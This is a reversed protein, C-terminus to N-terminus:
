VWTKQSEQLEQHQDLLQVNEQQKCKPPELETLEELQLLPHLKYWPGSHYMLEKTVCVPKTTHVRETERVQGQFGEKRCPGIGRLSLAAVCCYGSLAAEAASM